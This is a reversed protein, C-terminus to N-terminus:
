RQDAFFHALARLERDDTEKLLTRMPLAAPSIARDPNRFEKLQLYLYEAWQGALRPGDALTKRGNGQHCGVCGKSEYLQKGATLFDADLTQRSSVWGRAAFFKAFAILQKDNYAKAIRGMITSQRTGNKYNRLTQLLYSEPQGAISPMSLGASVGKEGHCMACAHSNLAPNNGDDAAAIATCLVIGLLHLVNVIWIKM